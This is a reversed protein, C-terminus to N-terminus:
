GNDIINQRKKLKKMMLTAVLVMDSVSDGYLMDYHMPKTPIEEGFYFCSLIENGTEERVNCGICTKDDYKWGKHTKIDLTKARAKFIFKSTHINKNGDMLYEQLELM